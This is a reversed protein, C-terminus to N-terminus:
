RSPRIWDNIEVVKGNAMKITICRIGSLDPAIGLDYRWWEENGKDTIKTQVSSSYFIDPKAKGEPPYGMLNILEGKSLGVQIGGRQYIDWSRGYGMMSACGSLFVICMIIIIIQKVIEIEERRRM